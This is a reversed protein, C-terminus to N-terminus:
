KAKPCFFINVWLFGQHLQILQLATLMPIIQFNTKKRKTKKKLCILKKKAGQMNDSFHLLLKPNYKFLFWAVTYDCKKRLATTSWKSDQWNQTFWNRYGLWGSCGTGDVGLLIGLTLSKCTWPTALEMVEKKILPQRVSHKAQCQAKSKRFCSSLITCASYLFGTLGSNSPLSPSSPPCGSSSLVVHWPFMYWLFFVLSCLFM